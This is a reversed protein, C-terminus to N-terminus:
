WSKNGSSMGGSGEGHLHSSIKPRGVIVAFLHNNLSVSNTSQSGVTGRGVEEEEDFM